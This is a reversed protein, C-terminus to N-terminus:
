DTTMPAAYIAEPLPYHVAMYLAGVVAILLLAIIVILPSVKLFAIGTHRVPMVSLLAAIITKM